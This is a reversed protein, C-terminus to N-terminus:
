CHEGSSLVGAQLVPRLPAAFLQRVEMGCGSLGEGDAADPSLSLSLPGTKPPLPSSMFVIALRPKLLPKMASGGEWHLSRQEREMVGANLCGALWVPCPCLCTCTCTCFFFPPPLAFAHVLLPHHLFLPHISHTLDSVKQGTECERKVRKIWGWIIKRGEKMTIWWSTQLVSRTSLVSKDAQRESAEWNQVTLTEGSDSLGTWGQM